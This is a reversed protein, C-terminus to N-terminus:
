LNESYSTLIVLLMTRGENLVGSTVLPRVPGWVPMRGACADLLNGGSMSM